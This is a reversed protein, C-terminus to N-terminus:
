SAFPHRHLYAQLPQDAAAELDFEFDLGGVQVHQLVHQMLAHQM